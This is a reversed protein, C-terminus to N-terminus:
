KWRLLTQKGIEHQIDSRQDQILKMIKLTVVELSVHFLFQRPTPWTPGFFDSLVWSIPLCVKNRRHYSFTHVFFWSVMLFRVFIWLFTALLFHCFCDEAYVMLMVTLLPEFKSGFLQFNTLIPRTKSKRGTRKPLSFGLTVRGLLPPLSSLPWFGPVLDYSLIPELSHSPKLYFYPLKASAWAHSIRESYECQFNTFKASTLTPPQELGLFEKNFAIM